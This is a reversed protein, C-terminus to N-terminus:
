YVTQLLKIAGGGGDILNGDHRWFMLYAVQGYDIFREHLRLLIPPARRIVYRSWDGFALVNRSVTPSSTNTQFVDMNPNVVVGYNLVRDVGGAQLDPFVPRGQKDKVKRLAALTNPHMQWLANPRYAPDVSAELTAFDDTGLTNAGSTGDNTNAGAATGASSAQTVFGYPETTGAGTTFKTNLIRGLRIGLREAIYGSLDFGSDQLLEVSVKLLKSSYLFSKLVVQTITSIDQDGVQAQENVQEGTNAADNDEPFGRPAGSPTNIVTAIDLLPGTFKMASTVKEQFELPVFQGSTAGPYAGQGGTGMDRRERLIKREEPSVGPGLLSDEYGRRLWSEYASAYKRDHDLTLDTELADMEVRLSRLRTLEQQSLPGNKNTLQLTMRGLMSRREALSQTKV